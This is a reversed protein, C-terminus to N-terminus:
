SNKSIKLYSTNPGPVSGKIFLLNSDADVGVIILKNLTVKQGGSRGAMKKGKLVRQPWRTGISGVARKHDHGHSSPQGHFGHRKIAGTFGKGISVGTVKVSDKDKFDTIQIIKSSEELNIERFEELCHFDNEIESHKQIHKLRPKLSGKKKFAGIQIANYGDKDKTKKQVVFQEPFYVATVAVARNNLYIRTMGIKKGFGIM